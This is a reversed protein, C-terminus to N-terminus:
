RENKIFNKNNLIETLKYFKTIFMLHSNCKCDSCGFKKVGNFSKALEKATICEENKDSQKYFVNIIKANKNLLLYDIHWFKKKNKSKHRKIRSELNNQASGIYTYNGKKLEINGLVGVKIKVDKKLNIVLVYIGNM